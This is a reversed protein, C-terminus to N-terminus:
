QQRDYVRRIDGNQVNFVMRSDAKVTVILQKGDGSLSYEEVVHLTDPTDVERRLKQGDWRVKFDAPGAPTAVTQKKNDTRHAYGLKKEPDLLMRFDTPTAQIGMMPPATFFMKKMNNFRTMEEKGLNGGADDGEGGGRPGRAAPRPAPGNPNTSAEPNLKWVGTLAPVDGQRAAATEDVIAVALLVLGAVAAGAVFRRM